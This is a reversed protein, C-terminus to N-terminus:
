GNSGVTGPSIMARGSFGEHEEGLSTPVCTGHLFPSRHSSPKRPFKILDRNSGRFLQSWDGPISRIPTSISNDAEPYGYVTGSDPTPTDSLHSSRTIM